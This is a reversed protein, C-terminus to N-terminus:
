EDAYPAGGPRKTPQPLWIWARDPRNLDLLHTDNREIKQWLRGQKQTFRLLVPEALADNGDITNGDRFGKGIVALGAGTLLPLIGKTLGISRDDFTLDGHIKVRELM